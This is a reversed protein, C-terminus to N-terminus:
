CFRYIFGLVFQNNNPSVITKKTTDGTTFVLQSHDQYNIHSYEFRMDFNRYIQKQLGIGYRIGNLRSSANALSIDNTQIDFYGSTYGVRGYLLTTCPLVIGPLASIGWSRDIKYTTNAFANHIFEDNSIHFKASSLNGNLEGALYFWCRSWSYGAFLDGLVGQGALQTKNIVNTNPNQVYATERFDVADVGIGAGGYFGTGWAWCSTSLMFLIPTIIKKLM